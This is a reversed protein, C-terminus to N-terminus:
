LRKGQPIRKRQRAKERLTKEYLSEYQRVMTMPDFRAVVMERAKQGITQAMDPNKILRLVAEAFAQADGRPVLLGTEGHHIIERNGGVNTAVVPKGLAMAELLSNSCGETDSTLVAVDFVSIYTGVDGQAGFFIVKSGLGLEERLAELHGRLPGDGLLVFRTEPITKNILAAAHLFMVHNKVPFLRAMMGVVKGSPPLGLGQRVQEVSERNPTLRSFNVGNYIVRVKSPNIGRQVLYDGGAQSNPIAWDCFRSLFDEIKLYFRYGLGTSKNGRGARETVIRVPTGCWLAPLLGFFTAPTLFPQVVDVKVSRLIRSVELLRLFDYKGKRELSMVQLGPVARFEEDMPGGHHLTLVIPSFRNKDLGKVLELLQHQAGDRALDTITFLVTIRQNMLL